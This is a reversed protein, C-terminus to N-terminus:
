DWAVPDVRVGDLGIRHRVEQFREAVRQALEPLRGNKCCGRDNREREADTPGCGYERQDM